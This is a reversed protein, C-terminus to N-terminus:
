KEDKRGIILCVAGVIVLIPVPWRLQGTLPLDGAVSKVMGSGTNTLMITNAERDISLTYGSPVDKEMVDWTYENSLGSWTYRFNNDKSLVVDDYVESDRLLLVNISDPRKNVDDNKWIKIVHLDYLAKENKEYKISLEVDEGNLEVLTSKFTYVYDKTEISSINVLYVGDELGSFVTKNSNSLVVKDAKIDESKIYALLADAEMAVSGNDEIKYLSIEVNDIPCEVVISYSGAYVRISCTILMIFSLIVVFMKNRGMYYCGRQEKM